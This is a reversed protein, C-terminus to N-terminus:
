LHCRIIFTIIQINYEDIIKLMEAPIDDSGPSRRNKAIGIVCQVESKLIKLPLEQM